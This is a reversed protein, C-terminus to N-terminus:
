ENDNIKKLQECNSNCSRLDFNGLKLREVTETYLSILEEISNSTKSLNDVYFNKLLM